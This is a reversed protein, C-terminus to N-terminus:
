NFSFDVAFLLLVLPRTWGGAAPTPTPIPAPTSPIVNDDGENVAVQASSAVAVNNGADCGNTNPGSRM